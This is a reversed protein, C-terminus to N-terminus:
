NETIDIKSHDDAIILGIAGIKAAFNSKAELMEM